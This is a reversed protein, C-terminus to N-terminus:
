ARIRAAYEASALIAEPLQALAAEGRRILDRAWVYETPSPARGLMTAAIVQVKLDVTAALKAKDTELFFAAAQGRTWTRADLRQVWVDAAAKTPVVRLIQRYLRDVFAANSLGRYPSDHASLFGTAAEPMTMGGDLRATWTVISATSPGRDLLGNFLRYVRSLSTNPNVHVLQVVLDQPHRTGGALATSWAAVEDDTAPRGAFDRYQRDVLDAWSAFPSYPPTVPITRKATDATIPSNAKLYDVLMTLDNEGTTAPDTGTKFAEFNDGGTALFTNATVRYTGAPDILEGNLRMSTADVRRGPAGGPDYEYTFGKSVGLWLVPRASGAPQWQEELMQRIQAGTYTKTVMDNAFPQVAFAEQYTVVGDPAYLLDARVGGANMFALQAGGRGAAATRDLQVDAIFNALDSESGREPDRRIDATISGVPTSGLVAANAKADAVITAVAPDEPYGVVDILSASSSTVKRTAPDYTLQVQGLKRGYDAAQVVPRTGGGPVPAELAYAQHTHGSFIADITAPLDVFRGFVPDNELDAVSTTTEAAGEHALAIVVDAEGNAPNGDKLQGAVTALENVPDRFELGEIGAPTVLSPTQDTVVGVYAVQIGGLEKVEFAPLIRQGDRYVNAALYPFAARDQVRGTLDAAGQDFEHNGVSSATLDMANLADITPNDHDIASVFTSAGINDGNSVFATNPNATRLQDVLGALQAAGGIPRGDGDKAPSELRGHFDNISLIQLQVPGAVAPAPAPEAAAPAALGALGTAVLALAASLAATARTSTRM